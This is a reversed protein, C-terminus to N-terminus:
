KKGKATALQKSGSKKLVASPCVENMPCPTCKPTAEFCYDQSITTLAEAVAIGKTKPVLNELAAQAAEVDTLDEVIGLRKLCRLSDEDVPMAHGDMSHRIVYAVLFPSSGRYRELMKQAQKLGKKHLGELDFSFTTEYVEQLISIIREARNMNDPLSQLARAVERAASVRVENLDFFSKNLSEFAQDAEERSTGERCVAYVMRNLVDLPAPEDIKKVLSGLKALVKQKNASSM